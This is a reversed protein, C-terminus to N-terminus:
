YNRLRTRLKNLQSGSVHVTKTDTVTRITDDHRRKYATFTITYTGDPMDYPIIVVKDYNGGLIDHRTEWHNIDPPTGGVPHEPILETVNTDAFGNEGPAWWMEAEVKFAKGETYASLIMAEGAAYTDRDTDGEVYLPDEVVLTREYWDSWLAPSLGNPSVDKVRLAIIYTGAGGDGWGTAEFISPPTTDHYEALVNGHEDKVQWVRESIGAGDPDYSTDNYTVPEDAVAPNPSITFRAVPKQNGQIVHLIRSFWDSWKPTMQALAPQDKVRLRVEYDGTDLSSLDTPHGNLWTSSSTKKYQWEWAVIPDGDPDYSNDIYGLEVDKPAPNHTFDFSAIPKQNAPIVEVTQYFPDSWLSGDSVKLEIRYEGLQNYINAPFSSGYDSWIGNPDIVRWQYSAIADGNPDYSYDEYGLEGGLPLPNPTVKFQAIPAKNELSTDIVKVTEDSWAGEKDKVRLSVLYAKNMDLTTPKGTHWLTETSEKWKWEEEVIGKQLELEHDLDYSYNTFDVNYSTINDSTYTIKIYAGDPNGKASKKKDYMNFYFRVKTYGGGEVNITDSIQESTYEYQSEYDKIKHWNADKYGEVYLYDRWYDDYAHPTMFEITKITSGDPADFQPNWQATRGGEGSFDIEHREYTETTIQGNPQLQFGYLAIPKRHVYIELPGSMMTSWKRYSDFRDDSGVPNDKTKYIVTFKGVKDFQNVSNSLWQNHYDVRGLSNDFYYPDHEYKWLEEGNIKPDDEYDDYFTEYHVIENLLVYRVDSEALSRVVSLIYDALNQLATDMDPNNNYIFMGKNNNDQILKETQIKNSDTGLEVFYLNDNIMRSLIVPYKEQNNLEPLEVDSLNVVFRYSNDRWDPEKLVEDLTKYSGTTIKVNKFYVYAQSYAFTGYKGNPIPNPDTWDCILTSEKWIKINSGEIKIKWNYWEKDTILAEPSLEVVRTGPYRGTMKYLGPDYAGGGDIIFAYGTMNARDYRFLWGYNDDDSSTNGGNGFIANRTSFEFEADTESGDGGLFGSFTGNFTTYITKDDSDYQWPISDREENSYFKEWNNFIVAADADDTSITSVEITNITTDIYDTNNAELPTKVYTNIKTNIEEIKSSDIQGITFVIDVKNEPVLKFNVIPAKNDVEIVKYQYSYRKDTEDVFESITPQGFEEKAYLEFQYKGVHSVKVTARNDATITLPSSWAEDSFIGDNDSDFRYRIRKIDIVDEDVSEASISYAVLTARKADDVDRYATQVVEFNVVPNTDEAVAIVQEAFPSKKGYTNTVQYRIKYRGKEKFLLTEDLPNNVAVFKTSSVIANELAGGSGDTIKVAENINQGDLAIIEWYDKSHDIPHMEPGYYDYAYSSNGDLIYKRNEKTNFSKNQWRYTPDDSIVATPLPYVRIQESYSYSQGKEDTVTATLEYFGSETFRISGGYKGLTNETYSNLNVEEMVAPNTIKAKKLSWQVTTTSIKEDKIVPSIHLTDDTYAWDNLNFSIDPIWNVDFTEVAVASRRDDETVYKEITPQGFEEKLFLEARFSGSNGSEFTVDFDINTSGTFSAYIDEDDFKGDEDDDRRITWTYQDLIDNDPSTSADIISVTASVPNDHFNPAPSNITFDAIPNEDPSIEIIKETDIADIQPHDPNADSYNNHCRLFVKYRGPEKFVVHKEEDTSTDPDIKISNPDQGDLPTIEWENRDTQIPDVRPSLSDHSHIIVKRNEKLTGEATIVAVPLPPIIQIQKTISDSLGTYDIVELSVSYVGEEAFSINGGSGSLYGSAEPPKTWNRTVIDNNPDTSTDTVSISENPFGYELMDFNAVPPQPESNIYVTKSYTDENYQPYADPAVPDWVDKHGDRVTLEIAYSGEQKFVVTGGDENLDASEFYAPTYDMDTTGNELDNYSYLFLNGEADRIKWGVWREDDERDWTTNTIDFPLTAYGPDTHNFGANPPTDSIEVDIFLTATAQDMNGEIDYVKVMGTIPIQGFANKDSPRIYVKENELIGTTNEAVKEGNIYFEYRDVDLMSTSGTADLDIYVSEKDDDAYEIPTWKESSPGDITLDATIEPGPQPEGGGEPPYVYFTLAGENERWVGDKVWLRLEHNGESEFTYPIEIQPTNESSSGSDVLEGDIYFKWEVGRYDIPVVNSYPGIKIITEEGAKVQWNTPWINPSPPDPIYIYYEGLDEDYSDIYGGCARVIDRIYYRNEYEDEDSSEKKLPHLEVNYFVFERNGGFLDVWDTLTDIAVYNRWGETEVYFVASEGLPRVKQRGDYEWGVWYDVFTFVIDTLYDKYIGNEDFGKPDAIFAYVTSVPLVQFLFVTMVIVAVVRKYKGAM